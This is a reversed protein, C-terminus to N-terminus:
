LSSLYSSKGACLPCGQWPSRGERRLHPPPPQQAADLLLYPPIIQTCLKGRGSLLRTVQQTLTPMQVETCHSYYYRNRLLSPFCETLFHVYLIHCIAWSLFHSGSSNKTNSNKMMMKTKMKLRVAEQSRSTIFVM